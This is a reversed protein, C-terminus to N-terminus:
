QRSLDTDEPLEADEGEEEEEGGDDEDHLEADLQDVDVDNLEDDSELEGDSGLENDEGSLGGADVNGYVNKGNTRGQEADFGDDFFNTPPDDLIQQLKLEDPDMQDAM